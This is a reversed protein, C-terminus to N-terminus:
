VGDSSGSFLKEEEEPTWLLDPDLPELDASDSPEVWRVDEAAVAYFGRRGDIGIASKEEVRSALGLRGALRLLPLRGRALILQGGETERIPAVFALREVPLFFSRGGVEIAVGARGPIM